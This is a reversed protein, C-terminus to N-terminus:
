PPFYFINWVVLWYITQYVHRWRPLRPHADWPFFEDSAGQSRHWLLRRPRPSARPIQVHPGSLPFDHHFVHSFWAFIMSLPFDHHFVHSFWAFFWRFFMSGDHFIMPVDHFWWPFVMTFNMSGHSFWPFWLAVDHSKMPIIYGGRLKIYSHDCPGNLEINGSPAVSYIGCIVSTNWIPIM